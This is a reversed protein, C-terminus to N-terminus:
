RIIVKTVKSGQRRIYIGNEPNNVRVGQLNYFEVPANEDDTSVNEVGSLKKQCTVEITKIQSNATVTFVVEKAGEALTWTNDAYTGKQNDALKIVSKTNAFTYKIETILNTADDSAVTMTAGNYVRLNVNTESAYWIKTDTSTGKTAVVSVNGNTFKTNSVNISKGSDGTADAISYSPTLTSPDTFNFMAMNDAVVLITYAATAVNSDAFGEKVAIAKITIEEDIVIPTSYVQSDANHNTGDLTYYITAGETACKIEVETGKAVEGAAVSFTPTAAAELGQANIVETVLIQWDGKFNSVFGRVTMNQGTAINGIYFQDFLNAKTEPDQPNSATFNRGSGAVDVNKIEIYSLMPEGNFDDITTEIPKIEGENSGKTFGTPSVIEPYGGGKTADYGYLDYKGSYGGPIVDGNVYTQGTSGYAMIWASGDTMILNNGKQYVAKANGKVTTANSKDALAIFAAINDVSAPVVYKASAVASNEMGDKVAIAKVTTTENITIEGTYATSQATPNTGDITYHISAGETACAISVKTGAEVTGAGPTFTPTAVSEAVQKGAEVYVFQTFQQNYKTTASEFKYVTGAAQADSPIEFTYEQGRVNVATSEGIQKDGAYFNIKSNANESTGYDGSTTTIKIAQCNIPLSFSIYAGAAKKGAIMLYGSSDYTGMFTYAINTATSTKTAATTSSANVAWSYDNTWDETIDAAKAGTFLALACTLTLLFRKM